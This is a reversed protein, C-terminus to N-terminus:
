DTRLRSEIPGAEAAAPRGARSRLAPEPLGWLRWLALVLTSLLAVNRACLWLLDIPQFRLIGLFLVPFEVQTLATSVLVGLGLLPDDLAVLAAAPLLWILYQPSLVRDGCLFALYLALVGLALKRPNSRLGVRGRWLLACVAGLAVITVPDSLSTMLHSLPGVLFWSRHSVGTRLVAGTLFHAAMIPLGLVSEVELPRETQYVFVHRIGATATVLYPLFGITAVCLCSLCMIVSRRGWGAVVVLLPLLVVPTIKYACGLGVLAAAVALRGHVAALLILATILAVGIDFRDEVLPGIALLLLVFVAVALYVHAADIWLRRATLAVVAAALAALAFMEAAFRVQYAPFGVAHHGQRSLAPPVILWLSLPPYEPFFDRYPAKGRVVARAYGYDYGLDTFRHAPFWWHDFLVPVVVLVVIAAVAIAIVLHWWAATGHATKNRVGKELSTSRHRGPTIGM